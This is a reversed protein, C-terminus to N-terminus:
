TQLLPRVATRLEDATFPEHLIPVDYPLQAELEITARGKNALYLIALTPLRERLQLCRLIAIVIYRTTRELASDGPLHAARRHHPPRMTFPLIGKYKVSSKAASDTATSSM